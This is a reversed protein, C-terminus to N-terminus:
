SDDAVGSTFLGILGALCQTQDKWLRTRINLGQVGSYSVKTLLFLSFAECLCLPM